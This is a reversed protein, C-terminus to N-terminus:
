GPLAHLGANRSVRAGNRKPAVPEAGRSRPGAPCETPLRLATSVSERRPSRRWVSEYAAKREM